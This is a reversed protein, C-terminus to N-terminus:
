IALEIPLHHILLICVWRIYRTRHALSPTHTGAAGDRDRVILFYTQDDDDSEGDIDVDSEDDSSSNDRQLGMELLSSALLAAGVRQRGTRLLRLAAGMRALRDLLGPM